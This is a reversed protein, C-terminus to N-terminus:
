CATQCCRDLKFISSSGATKPSIKKDERLVNLWQSFHQEQVYKLLETEARKLETVTLLHSTTKMEEKKHRAVIYDKFRLLWATTRKLRHLSSYRTMLKDTAPVAIQISFVTSTIKDFAKIDCSSMEKKSFNNPWHEPALKLFPPGQFWLESQLLSEVSAGRSACDAPNLKTPVHRWNSICTHKSILALRRSVFLPFRKRDNFLSQLVVSSDSWFMSPYRELGLERRLVQDMKVAMVAAMLELRPISVDDQPNLRSKGM